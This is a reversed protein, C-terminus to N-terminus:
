GNYLIGEKTFEYDNCEITEEIAETSIRYDYEKQLLKLYEKLLSNICKDIDITEDNLDWENVLKYTKCNEGHNALILEKITDIDKTSHGKIYYDRDLSFSTIKLGISEAENYIYEWWEFDVNIDYFENLIQQQTPYDLENFKYLEITEIVKRM